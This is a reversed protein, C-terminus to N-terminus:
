KDTEKETIALYTHMSGQEMGLLHIRKVITSIEDYLETLRHIDRELQQEIKELKNDNTTKKQQEM